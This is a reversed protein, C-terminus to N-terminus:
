IVHHTICRTLYPAGSGEGNIIAVWLLIKVASDEEQRLISLLISLGIYLKTKANCIYIYCIMIIMHAELFMSGTLSTNQFFLPPVLHIHCLQILIHFWLGMSGHNLYMLKIGIEKIETYSDWM